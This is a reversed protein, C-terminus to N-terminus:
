FNNHVQSKQFSQSKEQESVFSAFFFVLSKSNELKQHLWILYNMCGKKFGNIYLSVVKTSIKKRLSIIIDQM